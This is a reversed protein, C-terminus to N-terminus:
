LQLAANGSCCDAGNGGRLGPKIGDSRLFRCRRRYLCDCTRGALGVVLPTGDPVFRGDPECSLGCIGDVPVDAGLEVDLAFDYPIATIIGWMAGSGLVFFIGVAGVLGLAVGVPVYLLMLVVMIALGLFGIQIDSM